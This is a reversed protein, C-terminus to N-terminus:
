CPILSTFTRRLNLRSGPLFPIAHRPVTHHQSDSLELLVEPVACLFVKAETIEALAVTLYQEGFLCLTRRSAQPLGRVVGRRRSRGFSIEAATGGILMPCPRSPCSGAATEDKSSTRKSNRRCNEKRNQAAKREAPGLGNNGEQMQQNERCKSFM